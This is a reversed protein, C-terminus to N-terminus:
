KRIKRKVLNALAKKENLSFCLMFELLYGMTGVLLCGVILKPWTGYNGVKHLIEFLLYVLVTSGMMKLIQPYFTSKPLKLVYACYIPTFVLIRIAMYFSSVGAVIYLEIGDTIVLLIITTLISLMSFM